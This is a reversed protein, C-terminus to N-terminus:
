RLRLGFTGDGTGAYLHEGQSDTVLDYVNRHSLGQLPLREWDRCQNTVKAVGFAARAYQTGAVYLADSDLPDYTIESINKIVQAQPNIATATDAALSRESGQGLRQEFFGELRNNYWSAGGDTTCFLGGDNTGFAFTQLQHPSAQVTRIALAEPPAIERWSGAQGAQDSRFIQRQTAVLVLKSDVASVDLGVIRVSSTFVQTWTTGGDTTRYLIGRSPAPAEMAAFVTNDDVPDIVVQRFGYPVCTEPDLEFGDRLQFGVPQWSRGGDTSKNVGGYDSRNSGSGFTSYVINPDQRSIAFDTTGGSSIVGEQVCDPSCDLRCQQYHSYYPGNWEYNTTTVPWGTGVIRHFSAGRDSSKYPGFDSIGQYLVAGNTPDVALANVHVNGVGITAPEWKPQALLRPDELYTKNPYRWAGSGDAYLRGDIAQEITLSIGIGYWFFPRGDPLVLTNPMARWQKGGNISVFLSKGLGVTSLYLTDPESRDILIRTLEVPGGTGQRPHLGSSIAQWDQGGTETKWVLPQSADCSLCTVYLTDPHTPHVAVDSLHAMDLNGTIDRWTEGLDYSRYLRGEYTTIVLANADGPVARIATVNHDVLALHDFTEGEDRSRWIGGVPPDAPGTWAGVLITDSVYDGDQDFRDPQNPHYPLVLSAQRTNQAGMGDALFSWSRGGNMSRHIEGSRGGETAHGWATSATVYVIEPDLPDLAVFSLRYAGLNSSVSFWDDGANETKFLGGNASSLYVVSANTPHVALSTQGSGGTTDLRQWRDTELELPPPPTSTPVTDQPLLDGPNDSSPPSIETSPRVGLMEKLFARMERMGQASSQCASVLLVVTLLAACVALRGKYWSPVHRAPETKPTFIRTHKM